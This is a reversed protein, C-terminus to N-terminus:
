RIWNKRINSRHGGKADPLEIHGMKHGDPVHVDFVGFTLGARDYAPSKGDLKRTTAFLFKSRTKM